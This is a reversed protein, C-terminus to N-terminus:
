AVVEKEIIEWSYVVDLLFGPTRYGMHVSDEESWTYDDEWHADPMEEQVRAASQAMDQRAIDVCAESYVGLIEVGDTDESSWEHLLVYVKM